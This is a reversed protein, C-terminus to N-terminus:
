EPAVTAEIREAAQELVEVLVGMRAAADGDELYRQCQEPSLNLQWGLLLAPNSSTLLADADFEVDRNVIPLLEIAREVHRALLAGDAAPVEEIVELSITSGEVSNIKVAARPHLLGLASGDAM